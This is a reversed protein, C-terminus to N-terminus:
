TRRCRAPPKAASSSRFSCSESGTAPSTLEITVQSRSADALSEVTVGVIARIPGSIGRDVWRRPPDYETIETIAEREHGGLSRVTTCQSGVRTPSENMHGRMVGQQWEPFTSPDIVYAFVDEAPRAIETQASSRLWLGM